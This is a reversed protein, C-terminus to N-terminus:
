VLGNKCFYRSAGDLGAKEQLAKANIIRYGRGTKQLVGTKVFGALVYLLHRYSVGLYEAAETHKETYLGNHSTILIFEALRASLPYSQNRTYNATNGVAKCSLFRCLFRLFGTDSLLKERCVETQIEYCVCPTIATVGNATKQAGLLEMEGIFCPANLFSVLSVRGNEHSIFLKARGDILYYLKRPTEGEQLIKEESDFRVLKAYPEVDFGFIDCLPFDVCYKQRAEYGDIDRM